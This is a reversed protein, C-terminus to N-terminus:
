DADVDADTEIGVTVLGGKLIVADGIGLSRLIMVAVASREGDSCVVVLPRTGERPVEHARRDLEDLPLNVAGPLSGQAFEGETRVDILVPPEPGSLSSRLRNGDWEEVPRGVGNGKGVQQRDSPVHVWPRM